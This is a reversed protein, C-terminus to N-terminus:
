SLLATETFCSGDHSATAVRFALPASSLVSLAVYPLSSAKLHPYTDFLCLHHCLNGLCLCVSCPFNM